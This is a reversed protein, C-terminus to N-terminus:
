VTLFSFGSNVSMVEPANITMVPIQKKNVIMEQLFSNFLARIGQPFYAAAILDAGVVSAYEMLEKEYSEKGPLTIMNYKVKHQALHKRVIAQNTKMDRLLWDDNGRYGVLHVTADFKEALSAAFQTVQVSERQFSFPMVIDNIEPDREKEQTIIFPVSSSSVVKLAHSGFVKQLGHSGHTGMVIVSAETLKAMKDIDHYIDGEMVKYSTMEKDEQPLKNIIEILKQEALSTDGKQGLIHGLLIQGGGAAKALNLAYHFAHDTVETFDYPVLYKDINVSDM